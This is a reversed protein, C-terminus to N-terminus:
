SALPATSRRVELRPQFLVDHEPEQHSILAFMRRWAQVGLEAHPVSATTLAPSTYRAFPIDDFGTVSIDDPVLVGRGQLGDILGIAVLDNYALVATAGSDIVRQTAAHGDESTAGGAITEISIGEATPIFQQLGARRQANSRSTPPGALYAIRRHGLETLHQALKVIGSQYDIALSPADLGALTRNILVLPQLESTLQALESDSMRPACLVIADCRRRVEAALLPEDSPSEASDAVLVRYGDHAATKSLSSLVAQFAPNALDPVVFAIASTQGLALSRALHSPRYDLSAASARVREAVDPEGVFRGNMVRSVTAPSVGAHTAVDAITAARSRRAM